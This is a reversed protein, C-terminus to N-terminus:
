KEARARRACRNESSVLTEPAARPERAENLPPLGNYPEESFDLASGRAQRLPCSMRKM